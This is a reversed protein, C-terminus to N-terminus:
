ISQHDNEKLFNFQNHTNIAKWRGFAEHQQAKDRFLVKKKLSCLWARAVSCWGSQAYHSFNRFFERLFNKFNQQQDFINKRDFHAM